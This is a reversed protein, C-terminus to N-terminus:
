APWVMRGINQWDTASLSGEEDVFHFHGLDSFEREYRWFDAMLQIAAQRKTAQEIPVYGLATWDWKEWNDDYYRSWLVWHFRSKHLYYANLRGERPSWAWEIQGLYEPDSPGHPYKFGMPKEDWGVVSDFPVPRDALHPIIHEKAHM